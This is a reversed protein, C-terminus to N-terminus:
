PSALSLAPRVGVIPSPSTLQIRTRAASRGSIAPESFAGGRVVRLSMSLGPYPRLGDGPLAPALYIVWRDRCLEKVNGVVDHLGFPNPPYTGVPATWSWGDNREADHRGTSGEMEVLTRDSLNETKPFSAITEGPWWPTTTGARAAREWQAETPMTLGMQRLVVECDQFSIKEVPHTLTPRYRDSWDPGPRHLSPNSGTARLWQAQTMEYKSIMFAGLTIEHVPGDSSEAAPDVHDVWPEDPHIPQQAGMRATGGPVLVLVLSTAETVAFRGTADRVPPAGSLAHAFEWLGSAPDRGVPILGLVPTMRLGGYRPDIAIAAVAERWAAAPEVLTTTEISRAVDLKRLVAALTCGHTAPSGMAELREVLVGLNDALWQDDDRSFTRRPRSAPSAGERRRLADLAARHQPLRDLIERADALWREIAPVADPRPPWLDRERDELAQVRRLDNLRQFDTFRETALRAAASAERQRYDLERSAARISENKFSLGVLGGLVALPPLTALAAAAPARRCWFLFRRALGPPRVTIPLGRRIRALDDAFAEATAYRRDPDPDTGADLVTVLDRPVASGRRREDPLVARLTAALAFVDTRRDVRNRDGAVQEPAMFPATGLIEGTVTLKEAELDRFLALGFDLVVPEDGATVMINGPKVDRHVLGAEHAIHLARSAKEVLTVYRWVAARDLAACPDRAALEQALTRGEVHRMVLYEVGHASAADHVTALGPHDIRALAQAEREFRRVMSSLGSWTPKLVKLAVPRELKTDFALFVTGQGGRGLEREIRYRDLTWAHHHPRPGDSAPAAPPEVGAAAKGVLRRLEESVVDEFGPYLSRYEAETRPVGQDRDSIFLVVFDDRADEAKAEDSM